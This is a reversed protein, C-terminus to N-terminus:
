VEGEQAQAAVVTAGFHAQGQLSRPTQSRGLGEQDGGKRERESQGRLEYTFFIISGFAILL